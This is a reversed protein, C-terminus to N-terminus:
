IPQRGAYGSEIDHWYAVQEEGLEWCLFVVKDDRLHPFDVLGRDLDKIVVGQAVIQRLLRNLRLLESVYISAGAGGGNRPAARLM